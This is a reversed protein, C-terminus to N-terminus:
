FIQLSEKWNYNQVEGEKTSHLLVFNGNQNIDGFVFTFVREETYTWIEYPSIDAESYNRQIEDPMGYKILIRGKDTKYGETKGWKFNKNAYLYRQMVDQLFENEPTEPFPDRVKWFNILFNAKGRLNLSEYIEMEKPSAFYELINGGTEAEEETLAPNKVLYDAQIIEFARSQFCNINNETDNIEVNLEYIGSNLGELNIAHVVRIDKASKKVEVGKLSKIENKNKDLISYNIILREGSPNKINYIEYYFSLNPILLGYRRWPNPIIVRGGKRFHSDINDEDVRSIFEISSSSFASDDFSPVTFNFRSIGSTKLEEEVVNIEISYFGPTLLEAWQDYVVLNKLNVSDRNLLAHTNWNKESVVEQNQNKILTTVKFSANKKDEKLIFSLQDAHIMLYFEQYTKGESGKFSSFDVYFKLEGSSTSPIDQSFLKFCFIILFTLLFKM